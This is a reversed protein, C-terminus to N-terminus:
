LCSAARDRAALTAPYHVDILEDASTKWDRSRALERGRVGLLGRHRDGVVATLARVLGAADDPAHGLGTEMPLVVDALGGARPAVVPLGSAMAERAAHCCTEERGPHVLLDSSALATALDGTGLAGTFVAQPLRSRLWGEQPGEGIVVLRMGPVHAALALRRVGHRKHLSGVFAAVVLPGSPSRVRAWTDHLWADRLEPTFADTDVGPLWLDADGGLAAVREIMWSATVLMRDSRDLVKAKWYDATLDLVPSHQVMLTPVGLGRAHKLAKRGLTGPSTVHVLDPSFAALTGRVQRGPKDLPRIRAVQSRRYSSLGPGPAVVLVEHGRDILRDAVAKITTTTGDTAPYFSDTVLAVRLRHM